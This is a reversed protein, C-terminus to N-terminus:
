EDADEKPPWEYLRAEPNQLDPSLVKKAVIPVKLLLAFRGDPFREALYRENAERVRKDTLCRVAGLVGSSHIGNCITLTRSINFPHPLRALFGVDQVQERKGGDGPSDWVPYHPQSGDDRQVVFIEGTKLGPDEVQTVPVQGLAEQFRRTVPNWAIGGLLIVDTSLDDAEVDTHLRYYVDLDPNTARLHGFIEILADLDAYQQAENFNPDDEGTAGDQVAKPANPCIITVPGNAFTFTSRRKTDGGHLLGLLQEKLARFENREDLTLEAEPILHPGGELSRPTSFFRAYAVLRAANPTKPNTASEWSSVTAAAVNREASFANALEVQTLQVEPWQSERLDRLRRALRLARGSELAM